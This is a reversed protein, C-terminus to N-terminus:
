IIEITMSALKHVPHSNYYEVARKLADETPSYIRLIIDGKEIKEGIKQMIEVGASKAGPCGAIKAIQNINQNDVSAVIGEKEAVIETIFPGVKIDRPLIEPNGGQNQIIKKMSKFAKGNFILKTALDKGHGEKAKGAMELLVGALDTSKNLLSSPCNEPHILLDLAERAELAPGIAHGIPQSASTLLCTADIEVRRAIEKFRQAFKRGEIITPFKTGQGTPVDLVMKKIGMGMKKSIISAMMLSLPDVNLKKEVNLIVDAAPASNFSGTWFIGANTKNLIKMLEEKSFAIKGFVE